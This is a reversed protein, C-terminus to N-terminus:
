RFAASLSSVMAGEHLLSLQQVKKLAKFYDRIPKHTPKPKLNLYPMQQEWQQSLPTPHM